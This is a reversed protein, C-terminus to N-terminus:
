FASGRSKHKRHIPGPVLLIQRGLAHSARFIAPRGAEAPLLRFNQPRLTKSTLEPCDRLDYLPDLGRPLGKVPQASLVAAPLTSEHALAHRRHVRTRWVDSMLGSFCRQSKRALGDTCSTSDHITLCITSTPIRAAQMGDIPAHRHPGRRRSAHRAAELALTISQELDLIAANNMTGHRREAVRRAARRLDPDAWFGAHRCGETFSGGVKSIDVLGPAPGKM